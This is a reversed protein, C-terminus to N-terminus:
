ADRGAAQPLGPDSPGPFRQRLSQHVADPRPESRALVEEVMAAAARTGSGLASHGPAATLVDHALLLVLERGATIRARAEGSLEVRAGDVVALLDEIALPGETIV